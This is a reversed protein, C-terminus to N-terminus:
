SYTSELWTTIEALEQAAGPRTPAPLRIGSRLLNIKRAVPESMAHGDFRGAGHALRVLRETWDAGVEAALWNTDFSIFNAQVWYVRSAFEAREELEHEAAAVFA